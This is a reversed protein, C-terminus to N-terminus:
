EGKAFIGTKLRLIDEVRNDSQVFGIRHGRKRHEVVYHLLSLAVPIVDRKRCELEKAIASVQEHPDDVKVMFEAM